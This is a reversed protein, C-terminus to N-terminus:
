PALGDNVLDVFDEGRVVAEGFLLQVEDDVVVDLVSHAVGQLHLIVSALLRVMISVLEDLTNEANSFTSTGAVGAVYALANPLLLLGCGTKNSMSTYPSHRVLM